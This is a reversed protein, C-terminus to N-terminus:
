RSLEAARADLRAALQPLVEALLAVVAPDFVEFVSVLGDRSQAVLAAAQETLEVRHRRRDEPDTARRAVHARELRDVVGTVGGSTLGMLQALRAQPMPGYADLYTVARSGVVDLGYRKAFALRYANGALAVAALGRIAARAAGEEEM